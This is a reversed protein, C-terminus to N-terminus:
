TTIGYVAQDSSAWRDVLAAAEEVAKRADASLEAKYGKRAVKVVDALSLSLGDLVITKGNM